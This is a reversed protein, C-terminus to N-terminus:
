VCLSKQGMAPGSADEGQPATKAPLAAGEVRSAEASRKHLEAGGHPACARSTQFCLEKSGAQGAGRPRLVRGSAFPVLGHFLTKVYVLVDGILDYCGDLFASSFELKGPV